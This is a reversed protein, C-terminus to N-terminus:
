IASDHYDSFFCYVTMQTSKAVFYGLASLKLFKSLFRSILRERFIRLRFRDVRYTFMFNNENSNIYILLFMLIDHLLFSFCELSLPVSLVCYFFCCVCYLLIFNDEIADEIVDEFAHVFVNDIVENIAGEVTDM